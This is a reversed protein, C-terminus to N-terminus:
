KKVVIAYARGRGLKVPQGNKWYYASDVSRNEVVYIDNEYVTIAIATSSITSPAQNLVVPIGNKWYAAHRQGDPYSLAGAIYVDNGVVTVCNAESIKDSPALETPVGNKWYVAWGVSAASGAPYCEGVVHVDSGSVFISKAVGNLSPAIAYLFTPMGNKWYCPPSGAGRIHDFTTGAIYVDNGVVAIDRGEGHNSSYTEIKIANDQNKWYIPVKKQFSNIYASGVTYVDNGSLTIGNASPYIISPDALNIGTTNKWYTVDNGFYIGSSAVYVNSDSVAIDIGSSYGAHPLHVQNGNKWYIPYPLYQTTTNFSDGAIFVTPSITTNTNDQTGLSAPSNDKKCNIFAIAVISTLFFIKIM